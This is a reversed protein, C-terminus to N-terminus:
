APNMQRLNRRTSPEYELCSWWRELLL